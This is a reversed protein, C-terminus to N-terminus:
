ETRFSELNGLNFYELVKKLQVDNGGNLANNTVLKVKQTKGITIFEQNFVKTIFVKRNMLLAGVRLWIDDAGFCVEKILTINLMRKDVSNPPYLIGGVGTPLYFFSEIPSKYNHKWKRYPLIEGGNDFTIKHSRNAIISEPHKKRAELLTSIVNDPYYVDDDMTILVANPFRELCYYYKKHSRIDDEVFEIDLGRKKQEILRQPLNHGEFQLRSLWLIIRNPPNSQRLLCEVTIWVYDIRAPFSTLSVIIEEENSIRNVGFPYNKQTKEFYRPVTFDLIRKLIKAIIRNTIKSIIGFTSDHPLHFYLKLLFNM